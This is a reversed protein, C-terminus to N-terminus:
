ELKPLYFILLFLESPPNIIKLYNKLLCNIFYDNSVCCGNPLKITSKKSRCQNSCYIVKDWVEKWKKRNEFERNCVPCIKFVKNM